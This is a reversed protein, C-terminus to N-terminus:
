VCRPAFFSIKDIKSNRAEATLTSKFCQNSILCHMKKADTTMHPRTTMGALPVRSSSRWIRIVLRCMENELREECSTRTLGILRADECGGARIGPPPIIGLDAAVLRDDFQQLVRADDDLLENDLAVFERWVLREVDAVTHGVAEGGRQGVNVEFVGAVEQDAVRVVCKRIDRSYLEGVIM